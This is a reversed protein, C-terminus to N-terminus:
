RARRSGSGNWARGSPDASAVSRGGIGSNVMRPPMITSRRSMLWRSAIVLDASDAQCEALIEGAVAEVAQAPPASCPQHHAICQNAPEKKRQLLALDRDDDLGFDRVQEMLVSPNAAECQSVAALRAAQASPEADDEGGAAVATVRRSPRFQQM